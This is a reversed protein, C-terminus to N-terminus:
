SDTSYGGLEDDKGHLLAEIAKHVRRRGVRGRRWSVDRVSDVLEALAHM